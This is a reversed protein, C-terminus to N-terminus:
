TCETGQNLSIMAALSAAGFIVAIGVGVVIAQTWTVRGLTAMVGIIIIGLTAIGRGISTNIVSLPITCIAKSVGTATAYSNTAGLALVLLACLFLCRAADGTLWQHLSNMYTSRTM